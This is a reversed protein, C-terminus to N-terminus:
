LEDLRAAIAAILEPDPAAVVPAADASTVTLARFRGEEDREFAVEADGIMVLLQYTYGRHLIRLNFEYTKGKHNVPM